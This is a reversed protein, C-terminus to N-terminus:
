KLEDNKIRQEILLKKTTSSFYRFSFDLKEKDREVKIDDNEKINKILSRKFAQRVNADYLSDNDLMGNLSYDYYYVRAISDYWMSDLVTCSDQRIPCQKANIERLRRVERYNFTRLTLKGNYDKPGFHIGFAEEQPKDKVFYHYSFNVNEEKHKKLSIDDRLSVLLTETFDEILSPTLMDESGLENSLTYYYNLTKSAMDYTMSDITTSSDLERPCQTTTFKEAEEALYEDFTKRKCGTTMCVAILAFLIFKNQTM